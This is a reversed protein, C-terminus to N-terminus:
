RDQSDTESFELERCSPSYICGASEYTPALELPPLQPLTTHTDSRFCGKAGTRVFLSASPHIQTESFVEERCSTCLPPLVDGGKVAKNNVTMTVTTTPLQAQLVIAGRRPWLLRSMVAALGGTCAAEGELPRSARWGSTKKKM